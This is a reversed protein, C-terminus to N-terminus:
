IYFMTDRVRDNIKVMNQNIGVSGVSSAADSDFVGSLYRRARDCVLDAYYAPPCISVAKTARGYMYSMDHMLNELADAPTKHNWRSLIAPDRFIQDYVVYYHAPRATGQIATHAQLFFDWNCAQTVGRDVVTGNQPNFSRDADESRTPYFRTHHRKGVVIITIRPLGQKTTAPSYVEDCAQRIKPLEDQIILDYQGESVGDRCVLVNEPLSGNNRKRWLALRSKMLDTLKSVMEKRSEQIQIDGPMQSIFKDVTAVIGVVSPAEASSGPSPHTVDLGVVMTRGESIIGMKAPQLMQNRGGLKLNFKLAVNAFYQANAKKFKSAQVCVNIIGEKVDCTHKVRNYMEPKDSALVVLVLEPRNPNTAFARMAKNVETEVNGPMADRNATPPVYPQVTINQGYRPDACRIGVNRLEAVFRQLTAQFEGPNPWPLPDKSTSILLWTWSTLKTQTFFKIDRMNWGGFRTSATRNEAYGVMPSGFVRGNVATLHPDLHLQFASQTPNTSQDINLIAVGENVISQANQAPKRVAFNIMEKTQDPLLEGKFPECPGIRCVEVPLYIPDQVSGVNVVPYRPNTAINYTKKFYESVSTYNETSEMWFSVNTPGAFPERVIPPHDRRKGDNKTALGWITKARRHVQRGATNTDSLHTLIVSLSKLYKQLKSKHLGNDKVFLDILRQLPSEEFFPTNKVQINVLLRGTAPRVSMFFGRIAELGTGLNARDSPGAQWNYHRSSGLTALQNSAKPNHGMIINLVQIMCKTTDSTGQTSSLHRLLDSVTFSGDFKLLLTNPPSNSGRTNQGDINVNYPAGGQPINLKKTSILTAKFDTVLNGGARAFFQRLFQEILRKKFGSSLERGRPGKEFEIKYRFILLNDMSTLQMYNSWLIVPKGTTGYGPRTPMQPASSSSSLLTKELEDELKKINPDPRASDGPGHRLVFDIFARFLIGLPHYKRSSQRLHDLVKVPFIEVAKLVM